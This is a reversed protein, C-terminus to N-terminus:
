KNAPEPITSEIAHAGQLVFITFLVRTLELIVPDLAEASESPLIASFVDSTERIAYLRPSAGHSPWL